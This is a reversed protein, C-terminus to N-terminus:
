IDHFRPSNKLHFLFCKEDNKFPTLNGFVTEVKLNRGLQEFVAQEECTRDM